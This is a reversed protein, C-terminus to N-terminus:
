PAKWIVKGQQDLLVFQQARMEFRRRREGLRREPVVMGSGNERREHRRRDLIVEVAPQDSSSKKLYEYVNSEEPSVVFVLKWRRAQRERRDLSKASTDLSQAAGTEAWEPYVM